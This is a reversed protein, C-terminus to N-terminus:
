NNTVKHFHFKIKKLQKFIIFHWFKLFILIHLSNAAAFFFFFSLSSEVTSIKSFHLFLIYKSFTYIVYFFYRIIFIISSISLFLSYFHRDRSKNKQSCKQLLIYVNQVTSKLMETSHSSFI